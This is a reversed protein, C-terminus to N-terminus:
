ALPLATVAPVAGTRVMEAFIFKRNQDQLLSQVVSDLIYQVGAVQPVWWLDLRHWVARVHPSRVACTNM